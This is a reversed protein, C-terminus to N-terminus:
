LLSSLWTIEQTSCWHGATETEGIPLSISVGLDTDLQVSTHIASLGQVRVSLSTSVTKHSQARLELYHWFQISNRSPLQHRLVPSNTIPTQSFIWVAGIKKKKKWSYHKRGHSYNNAHAVNGPTEPDVKSPIWKHVTALICVM